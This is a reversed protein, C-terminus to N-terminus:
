SDTDAEDQLGTSVTNDEAKQRRSGTERGGSKGKVERATEALNHPADRNWLVAAM